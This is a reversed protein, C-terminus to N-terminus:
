VLQNLVAPLLPLLTTHAQVQWENEKTFRAAAMQTHGIWGTLFKRPETHAPNQQSSYNKGTTLLIYTDTILHFNKPSRSVLKLGQTAPMSFQTMLWTKKSGTQKQFIV